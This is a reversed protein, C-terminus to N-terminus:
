NKEKGRKRKDSKENRRRKTLRKLVKKEWERKLKDERANGM